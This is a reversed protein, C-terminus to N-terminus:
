VGADGAFTCGDPVPQLVPAAVAKSSKGDTDARNELNVTGGNVKMNSSFGTSGNHLDDMRGELNLRQINANSFSIEYFATLGDPSIKEFDSPLNAFPKKELFSILNAVRPNLQVADLLNAAALQSRTLAFSAFNITAIVIPPVVSTSTPVTPVTPIVPSVPTSQNLLELVVSQKGYILDITSLGPRLSFPDVFRAFQGSVTGGSTVLTLRNVAVARRGSNICASHEFAPEFVGSQRICERGMGKPSGSDRIEQLVSSRQFDCLVHQYGSLSARHGVRDALGLRLCPASETSITLHRFSFRTELKEKQKRRFISVILGLWVLEM